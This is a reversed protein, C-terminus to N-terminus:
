TTSSSRGCSRRRRSGRTTTRVRPTTSSRSGCRTRTCRRRAASRSTPRGAAGRCSRLRDRGVCGDARPVKSVPSACPLARARTVRGVASCRSARRLPRGVVPARAALRRRRRRAARRRPTAEDEPLPTALADLRGRGSASGSGVRARGTSASSSSRGTARRRPSRASATCRFSACRSADRAGGVRPRAALALRRPHRPPSPGHPSSGAHRLM